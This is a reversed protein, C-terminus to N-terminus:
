FLSFTNILYKTISKNRAVLFSSAGIATVILVLTGIFVQIITTIILIWTEIEDHLPKLYSLVLGIVVSIIVALIILLAVLKRGGLLASMKMKLSTVKLNTPLSLEM